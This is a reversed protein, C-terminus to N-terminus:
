YEHCTCQETWKILLPTTSSKMAALYEAKLMGVTTDPLNRDLLQSFHWVDHAPTNEAPM